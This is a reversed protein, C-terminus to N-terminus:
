AESKNKRGGSCSVGLRIKGHLKGKRGAEYIAATVGVLLVSLGAFLLRNALLRGFNDAYDGTRFWSLEGANHRPALRFIAYADSLSRMGSNLDLLWWVGQVALAIPTGTLETLCMGVASAMMVSPMIWGLAYKLPALCDLRIGDYRGWVSCNSAYSLLIVPLMVAALVALYRFVIVRLSSTQRAYIMEAMGAQRDKMCLIVALFAPLLSMVMAVAYDSFLRAYGGTIRDRSICLEYSQVAEEYSLPVTGFGTLSEAAYSSGGGLVADVREMLDQFEAYEMGSRVTPLEVPDSVADEPLSFVFNGDGDAELSGDEGIVFEGGDATGDSQMDLVVAKDVGTLESLIEAVESQERDNLKVKKILGFPYTVYLNRSFEGWLSELAAPMIIEPIEEQKTGYNGGEEPVSIINGSFNLAGQSHLALVTVAVFLLYSISCVVKKFERLFLM